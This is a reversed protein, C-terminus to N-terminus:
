QRTGAVSLGTEDQHLVEVQILADKVQEEVDGLNQACRSILECLTGESMAVGLLDAMVECARALPLLQQHVLYVGIPGIAPGYQVPALVEQPFSAVTIQQCAPCQKNEAQHERVRLRPWPLDFVQRREVASPAIHVLDQQCYQCRHVAHIMVEDPCSQWM